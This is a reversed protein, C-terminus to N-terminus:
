VRTSQCSSAVFWFNTIFVASTNYFKGSVGYIYVMLRKGNDEDGNGYFFGGYLGCQTYRM